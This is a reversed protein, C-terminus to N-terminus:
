SWTIDSLVGLVLDVEVREGPKMTGIPTVSFRVTCSLADGGDVPELTLTGTAGEHPELLEHLTTSWLLALTISDMGGGMRSRRPKGFTRADIAESARDITAAVLHPGLDVTTPGSYEISCTPNNLVLM